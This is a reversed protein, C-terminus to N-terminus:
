LLMSAQYLDEPQAALTALIHLCAMRVQTASYSESNWIIMKAQVYTM